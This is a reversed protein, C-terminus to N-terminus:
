NRQIEIKTHLVMVIGIFYLIYVIDNNRLDVIYDLFSGLIGDQRKVGRMKCELYSITCKKYNCIAKMICFVVIVSYNPPIGGDIFIYLVGILLYVAIIINYIKSETFEM